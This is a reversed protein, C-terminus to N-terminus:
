SVFSNEEYIESIKEVLSMYCYVSKENWKKHKPLTSGEEAGYVDIDICIYKDHIFFVLISKEVLPM